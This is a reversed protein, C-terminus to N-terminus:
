DRATPERTKGRRDGANGNAGPKMMWAGRHEGGSIRTGIEDGFNGTARETQNRNEKEQIGRRMRTSWSGGCRRRRKEDKEDNRERNVRLARRFM